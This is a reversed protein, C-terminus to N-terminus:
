AMWNNCLYFRKVHLPGNGKWGRYVQLGQQVCFLYCISSYPITLFYTRQRNKRRKENFTQWTGSLFEEAQDTSFNNFHWFDTATLILGNTVFPYKQVRCSQRNKPAANHFTKRPNKTLISWYSGVLLGMWYSATIEWVTRDVALFMQLILIKQKM